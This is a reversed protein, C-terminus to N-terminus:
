QDVDALGLWRLQKTRSCITSRLRFKESAGRTPSRTLIFWIASLNRRSDPM